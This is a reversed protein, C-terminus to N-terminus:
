LAPLYYFLNIAHFKIETEIYIYILITSIVYYVGRRHINNNNDNDNNSNYRKRM